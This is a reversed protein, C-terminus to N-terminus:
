ASSVGSRFGYWWDASAGMRASVSCWEWQAAPSGWSRLDRDNRDHQFQALRVLCFLDDAHVASRCSSYLGVARAPVHIRELLQALLCDGPLPGDSQFIDAHVYQPLLVPREASKASRQAEQQIDAIATNAAIRASSDLSALIRHEGSASIATAFGALLALGALGLVALAILVEVLTDGRESSQSTMSRRSVFWRKLNQVRSVVIRRM